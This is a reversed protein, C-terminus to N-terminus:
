APIPPAPAPQPQETAQVPGPIQPASSVAGWDRLPDKARMKKGENLAKEYAEDEGNSPLNSWNKM